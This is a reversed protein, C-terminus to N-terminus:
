AELQMAERYIAELRAAQKRQEFNDAVAASAAAGWAKLRVPDDAAELLGGALGEADGEDGLWGSVGHEVAEPIGGHRTAFAPLGTAMAELLSNPVGEQNGDAGLESPHLFLHTDYLKARLADQTLFGAFDVRPGLGLKEAATRLAPALPGEGAITLRALPWRRCFIQFARLTVFLGKKEILRCAQLLRWAGGEPAAREQFPFEGLPIGTRHLRLKEPPCGLERLAKLLSESRALVLRARSLMELAMRRYKPRDLDVLVDAGHFSVVAPIQLRSLLPLLQVAIHGFYVHLVRADALSVAAALRRTEDGSLTVPQRCIQRQWLRRLWKAGGRPVMRVDQFPFRDANEQRQTFVVSRFEKLGAVQRYIHLM